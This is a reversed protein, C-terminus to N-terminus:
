SKDLCARDIWALRNQEARGGTWCSPFAEPTSIHVGPNVLLLYWPLADTLPELVEGQGGGVAIGGDLFFPVDSGISLAIRTLQDPAIEAQYLDLVGRLTAAADSSGGGLGAGIPISKRVFIEVGGGLSLESLLLRAAKTCLNEDSSEAALRDNGEVRCLVEGDTRTFELRDTLDLAAFITNSTMIDMLVDGSFRM